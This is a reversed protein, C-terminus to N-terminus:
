CRAGGDDDGENDVLNCGGDGDGGKMGQVMMMVVMLMLSIVM